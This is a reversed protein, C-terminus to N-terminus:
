LSRSNKAEYGQMAREAALELRRQRDADRGCRYTCFRQNSSRRQMPGDCYECVTGTRAPAKPRARPPELLEVAKRLVAARRAAPLRLLENALVRATAHENTTLLDV